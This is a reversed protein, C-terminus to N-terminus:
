FLEGPHLDSGILPELADLIVEQQCDVPIRHILEERDDPSMATLVFSGRHESPILPLQLENLTRWHLFNNHFHLTPLKSALLNACFHLNPTQSPGPNSSPNHSPASAYSPQDDATSSSGDVISASDPNPKSQVTWGHHNVISFPLCSPPHPNLVSTALLVVIPYQNSVMDYLEDVYCKVTVGYRLKQRWLDQLRHARESPNVFTNRLTQVLHEYPMDPTLGARRAGLAAPKFLLRTICASRRDPEVASLADEQQWWKCMKPGHHSCPQCTVRAIPCYVSTRPDKRSGSGCETVRKPKILSRLAMMQLTYATIWSTACHLVLSRKSTIRWCADARLMGSAKQLPSCVPSTSDCCDVARQNVASLECGRRDG